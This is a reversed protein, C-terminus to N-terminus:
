DLRPNTQVCFLSRVDATVTLCFASPQMCLFLVRELWVQAARVPTAGNRRVQGNKCPSLVGSSTFRSWTRIHAHASTASHQACSPDAKEMGNERELVPGLVHKSDRGASVGVHAHATSFSTQRALQQRLSENIAELAKAKKQQRALKHELGKCHALMQNNSFASLAAEANKRLKSEKQL